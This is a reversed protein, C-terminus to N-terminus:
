VRLRDRNRLQGGWRPPGPLPPPHATGRLGWFLDPNEQESARVVTGDATVVDISLVTDCTWGLRRTLYGFGGGLTLGAIGTNSVFGLNAALGHLQTERDVDGLLCGAQAYAKRTTPDVFVGRMLSLDVMLGGDCVALGSINHGGGKISMALGQERAFNVCAVIDAVGLCRAILAPRRDIMANWISRADDYRPDGSLLLTGRLRGGFDDVAKRELEIVGGETTRAAVTKMKTEKGFYL